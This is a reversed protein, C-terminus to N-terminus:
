EFDLHTHAHKYPVVTGTTSTWYYKMKQVQVIFIFLYSKKLSKEAWNTEMSSSKEFYTGLDVDIIPPSLILSNKWLKYFM